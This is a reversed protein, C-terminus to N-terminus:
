SKFLFAADEASFLLALEDALLTNREFTPDADVIEFAVQRAQEIMECDRRLSAFRLDSRGKQVLANAVFGFRVGLDHDGSNRESRHVPV